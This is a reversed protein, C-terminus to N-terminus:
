RAGMQRLFKARVKSSPTNRANMSPTAWRLNARRCDLTKGNKHDGVARRYRPKGQWRTLIERHLWTTTGGACNRAYIHDPRAITFVGEAVEYFEGSGYTHCWKLDKAWLYDQYDLAAHIDWRDSLSIYYTDDPAPDNLYWYTPDFPDVDFDSQRLMNM